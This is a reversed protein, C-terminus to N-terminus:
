EQNVKHENELIEAGCGAYGAIDVYTDYTGNTVTLRGIKFLIMMNAVDQATVKEKGKLYTDWYNAIISFNDEPEGYQENRDTCICNAADDLCKKRTTRETSESVLDKEMDPKATTLCDIPCACMYNLNPSLVNVICRSTDTEIVNGNRKDGCSIWKCYHKYYQTISVSQESYENMMAPTKFYLYEATRPNETETETESDKNSNNELEEDAAPEEDVLPIEEETGKITKIKKYNVYIDVMYQKEDDYQILAIRRMCYHTVFDEQTVFYGLCKELSDKDKFYVKKM